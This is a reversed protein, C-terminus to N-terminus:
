WFAEEKAIQMIRWRVISAAETALYARLTIGSKMTLVTGHHLNFFAETNKGRRTERLFSSFACAHGCM